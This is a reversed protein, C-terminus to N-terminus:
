GFCQAIGVQRGFVKQALLAQRHFTGAAKFPEGIQGGFAAAQQQQAFAVVHGRALHILQQVPCLGTAVQQHHGFRQPIFFGSFAAVQQEVAQM